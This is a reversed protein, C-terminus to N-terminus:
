VGNVSKTNGLWPLLAGCAAGNFLVLAPYLQFAVREGATTLHWLLEAPTGVFVAMLGLLSGLLAIAPAALGARFLALPFLAVFGFLGVWMWNTQAAFLVHEAFWTVVRTGHAPLQAFFLHLLSGGEHRTLPSDFGHLMNFGHHLLLIALPALLCWYHVGPRLGAIFERPRSLRALVVTGVGAVLYLSGENKGWVMVCLGLAALRCWVADGGARWRLWADLAVVLGVSVVVEGDAQTAQTGSWKSALLLLLLVGAVGPRCVRRLAAAVVLLQAVYLLQLPVLNLGHTIRGAQLFAWTQLLPNLLPYDKQYHPLFPDKIAARFESTFGDFAFLIKAKGAWISAADGTLVAITSGAAVRYIVVAIAFTLLLGFVGREVPATESVRDPVLRARPASAILVVAVGTLLGAVLLGSAIGTWLWVFLALGTALSGAIWVWGAYALPDHSARIGLWRLVGVGLLAPVAVIVLLQLAAAM